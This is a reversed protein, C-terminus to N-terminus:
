TQYQIAQWEPHLALFEALARAEGQKPDGRYMFWDDFCVLAGDSLIPAVGELVCKASEYLDSDIHLLAVKTYKKPIVRPIADAFLGGEIEPRQLGCADFMRLISGPTIQENLALSPHGYLYNTGFSGAKWRPHPHEDPPLGSFSDFGAIRRGLCEKEKYQWLALNERYLQSLLALSKGVSVGFELIDGEVCEWNIYQVANVFFNTRADFKLWEVARTPDVMM